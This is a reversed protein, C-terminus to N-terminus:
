EKLNTLNELWYKEYEPYVGINLKDNFFNINEEIRESIGERKYHESLKFLVNSYSYSLTASVRPQNTHLINPYDLLSEEQVFSELSEVDIEWETGKTKVPLLKYVLGLYCGFEELGGMLDEMGFTWYIPRKWENSEVISILMAREGSLYTRSGELDPSVEWEMQYGESLEYLKELYDNVPILISTTDWKFPHLNMLQDNSVDFKVSRFLTGEKLEILYFPRNLLGYPIVTIDTRYDHCIQLYWCINLQFDGITFLIGDEEIKSLLLKGYEIYWDPFGGISDAKNYMLKAYEYDRRQLSYVAGAGCEATYFYKADGYDPDIKLAKELYYFVTDSYDRDYGALPRSDYANYHYYYGLYYYIEKDHPNSKLAEHLYEIAKPYNENEFEDFAMKKFDREQCFIQNAILLLLIAATIGKM